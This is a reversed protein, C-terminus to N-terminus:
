STRATSPRSPSSTADSGVWEFHMGDPTLYNGGWAFGWKRFIRVTRCDMRPTSGQGNTTTNTDLAMAWTHRSLFGVYPSQSLRNFRPYFCGGYTNANAVDITHALGREAVEALAAELAPLVDLHCRARITITPNLLRRCYNIPGCDINEDIWAQPLAVSGDSRVDFAFEGLALKTRMLTLGADPDPPDWARRIRVPHGLHWAAPARRTSWDRTPWPRTSRREPRSGWILVRSIDGIGIRSADDPRMVIETGGVQDDPALLAITLAITGGGATRVTLVDGVRAGRLGATSAAMVVRGPSTLADSVTRGMAARAAPVPLVTTGFPIRWGSPPAQVTRAGRSLRVMQIAASRGLASRGGAAAAAAQARAIVDGVMEPSQSVSVIDPPQFSPPPVRTAPAIPAAPEDISAPAVQPAVPRQPAAAVGVQTTMAVVAATFLAARRVTPRVSTM